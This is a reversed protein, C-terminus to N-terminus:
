IEINSILNTSFVPFKQMSKENVLHGLTEHGVFLSIAKLDIWSSFVIIERKQRFVNMERRQRFVNIEGKQRFKESLVQNNKDSRIIRVITKMKITISVVHRGM